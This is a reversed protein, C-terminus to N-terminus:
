PNFPEGTTRLLRFAQGDGDIETSTSQEGASAAKSCKCESGCQNKCCDCSAMTTSVPRWPSHGIAATAGTKLERAKLRLRQAAERVADAEAFLDADELKNALEDLGPSVQRLLDLRDSPEPLALGAYPEVIEATTAVPALASDSCASQATAEGTKCGATCAETCGGPGATCVGAQANLCEVGCTATFVGGPTLKQVVCDLTKL